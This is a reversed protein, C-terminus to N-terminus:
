ELAEETAIHIGTGFRFSALLFIVSMLFLGAGLGAIALGYGLTPVLLAALIPGLTSGIRELRRVEGLIASQGITRCEIWCLDPILALQPSAALGNGLGLCVMSIVVPLEGGGFAPALLGASGILGGTVVLGLRWGTRDALKSVMPSLIVVLVAYLMVVRAIDAYGYGITWLYLPALFFTVGTVAIKSPIAAFLVLVTFRWNRLLSLREKLPLDRVQRASKRQDILRRALLGSVLVLVASLLFVSRFGVWEALIGGLGAGCVSATLVAGVFVGLSQTRSEDRATSSIYVQCAMTVMAYGLGCSVRGILLHVSNQAIGSLFFGFVAPALGMLFVTRSGLRQAIAGSWPSFLAVMAMFSAIPVAMTMETSLWTMSNPLSQVYLPLFSRSLEEAFTFLFLALRIDLAHRHVSVNPAGKASFRYLFKVRDEVAHVDAIVQADFHGLRIEEVYAVLKRYLDDVMRVTRNLRKTFRGVEDLGSVGAQETFDGKAFRKLLRVIQQLPGSVNLSVVYLLIESAILFFVITLVGVDLLIARIKGAIYDGEIGVHLTGEAVSKAHLPISYDFDDDVTVSGGTTLKGAEVLDKDLSAPVVGVSYLRKGAVDYLCLYLFEQNGKLIPALFDEVGVLKDIPIGGALAKNFPISLEEAVTRAKIQLEPELGAELNTVALFSVVIVPPILVLVALVLLRFYLSKYRIDRM